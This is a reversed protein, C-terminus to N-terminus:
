ESNKLKQFSSKLASKSKRDPINQVSAEVSSLVSQLDEESRGGFNLYNSTRKIARESADNTLPFNNVFNCFKLFAPIQSWDTVPESLFGRGVGLAQFFHLSQETVRSALTVGHTLPAMKVKGPKLKNIPQELISDALDRKASEPVHPSALSFVVFEPATYWLHTQLRRIVTDALAADFKRYVLLDEFIDIQDSAADATNATSFFHRILILSLIKNM